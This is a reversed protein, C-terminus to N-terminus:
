RGMRATLAELRLVGMPAFGDLVDGRSTVVEVIMLSVGEM